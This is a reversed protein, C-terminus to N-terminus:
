DDQGFGPVWRALEAGFAGEADLQCLVALGGLWVRHILLYSPPV